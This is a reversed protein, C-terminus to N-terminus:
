TQVLVAKGTAILYRAESEPLEAVDGASVGTGRISTGKLIEVVVMQIEPPPIVIKRNTIM